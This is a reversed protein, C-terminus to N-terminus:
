VQLRDRLKILVKKENRSVQVQSMGLVKAAETQTMDKMYRSEIIMKEEKSLKELERKLDMLENIDKTDNIGVYDYLNVMKGKENIPEDLSQINNPINLAEIIQEESIGLIDSIEKITPERMLKQYLVLRLKEIKYGLKQLDYGLKIGKDERVFKKIEGLIFTYAYTSFKTNYGEDFKEKAKLLGICGVQFLDNKNQYNPFYTNIISYVLNQNDLILEDNKIM